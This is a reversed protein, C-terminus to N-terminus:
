KPLWQEIRNYSGPANEYKIKMTRLNVIGIKQREGSGQIFALKRGNPSFTPTLNIKRNRTIRRIGKGDTRATFVEWSRGVKATYAVLRGNPSFGGANAPRRVRITKSKGTAVRLLM